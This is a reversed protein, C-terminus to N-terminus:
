QRIFTKDEIAKRIWRMFTIAKDAANLTATGIDDAPVPFIYWEGGHISDVSYYFHGQRYYQFHVSNQTGDVTKGIFDKIDIKIDTM